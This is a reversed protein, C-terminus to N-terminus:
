WRIRIVCVKHGWAVCKDRRCEIVKRGTREILRRRVEMAIRCVIAEHNHWDSITSIYEHSTCTVAVHGSDHFLQWAPQAHAALTEPTAAYRLLIRAVTGVSADIGAAALERIFADEDEVHVAAMMARVADAVFAYPYWKGGLLGLNKSNPVMMGAWRPPMRAIVEHGAAPGYKKLFYEIAGVVPTGIM